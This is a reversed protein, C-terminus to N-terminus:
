EKVGMKRKADEIQNYYLRLKVPDKKSIKAQILESIPKLKELGENHQRQEEEYRSYSKMIEEQKLPNEIMEGTLRLEERTMENLGRLKLLTLDKHREEKPMWIRNAEHRRKRPLFSDKETGYVKCRSLDLSPRNLKELMMRRIYEGMSSAMNQPPTLLIYNDFSGYKRICRM